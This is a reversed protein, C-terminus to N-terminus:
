QILAMQEVKKKFHNFNYKNLNFFFKEYESIILDIINKLLPTSKTESFISTTQYNEKIIPSSAINIGIGILLFNKKNYSIVEQLIGSIKKENIFIDNPWKFLIKKNKCFKKIVNSIILPNIIAFENFPPYNSKLPFFITGFLNGASSIWKKGRTGRGKTQTDAHVYGVEKKEIKILDVAIDNTSTVNKFKFIKFRM